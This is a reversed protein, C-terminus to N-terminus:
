VIKHSARRDDVLCLSGPRAAILGAFEGEGLVQFLGGENACEELSERTEIQLRGIWQPNDKFFEEYTECYSQYCSSVSAKELSLAGTQSPPEPPAESTNIEALNGIMFCQDDTVHVDEVPM